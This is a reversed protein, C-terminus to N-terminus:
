GCLDSDGQVCAFMSKMYDIDHRFRADDDAMMYGHVWDKRDDYVSKENKM